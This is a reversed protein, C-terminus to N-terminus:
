SQLPKRPLARIRLKRAFCFAAGSGGHKAEEKESLSESQNQMRAQDNEEIM